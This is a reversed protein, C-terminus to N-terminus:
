LVAATLLWQARASAPVPTHLPVKENEIRWMCPVEKDFQRCFQANGVRPSGFTYLVVHRDPHARSVEYAALTAIAGGLSHGSIYIQPLPVAPTTKEPNTSPTLTVWPASPHAM